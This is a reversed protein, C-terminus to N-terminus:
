SKVYILRVRFSSIGTIKHKHIMNWYNMNVTEMYFTNKCRSTGQLQHPQDPLQHLAANHTSVPNDHRQQFLNCTLHECM